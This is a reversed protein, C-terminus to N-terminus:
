PLQRKSADFRLPVPISDFPEATSYEAQQKSALVKALVEVASRTGRRSKMEDRVENSVTNDYEKEAEAIFVTKATKMTLTNTM